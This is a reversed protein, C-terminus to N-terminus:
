QCLQERGIWPGWIGSVFAANMEWFTHPGWSPLMPLTQNPPPVTLSATPCTMAAGSNLYLLCLVDCHLPSIRHPANLFLRKAKLIFIRESQKTTYVNLRFCKNFTDANYHSFSWRPMVAYPNRNWNIAVYWTGIALISYFLFYYYVNVREM